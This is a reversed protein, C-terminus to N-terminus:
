FPGPMQIHGFATPCWSSSADLSFLLNFAMAGQAIMPLVVWWHALPSQEHSGVRVLNYLLHLLERLAFLELLWRSMGAPKEYVEM